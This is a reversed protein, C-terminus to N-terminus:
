FWPLFLADQMCLNAPEQALQQLMRAKAIAGADHLGSLERLRSIGDNVLQTILLGLRSNSAELEEATKFRSKLARRNHATVDDRHVGVM